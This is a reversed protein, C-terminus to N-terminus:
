PGSLFARVGREVSVGGGELGCDRIKDADVLKTIAVADAAVVDRDRLAIRQFGQDIMARHPKVCEGISQEEVLARRAADDRRQHLFAVHRLSSVRLVSPRSGQVGRALTPAEAHPDRVVKDILLLLEQLIKIWPNPAADHL